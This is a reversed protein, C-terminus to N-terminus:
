SKKIVRGPVGGIVVGEEFVGCVVAGAAVVSHSSVVSDKLVMSGRGLWVNSGIKTTGVNMPLVRIKSGKGDYGHNSDTIYTYAGMIVDDGIEIRRGVSIETDHGTSTCNGIILVANKKVHLITGEKLVCRGNFILRSGAECVIRVQAGVTVLGNVEINRRCRLLVGRLFRMIKM